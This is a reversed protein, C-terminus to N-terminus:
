FFGMLNLAQVFAACCAIVVVWGIPKDKDQNLYMVLTSALSVFIVAISVGLNAM